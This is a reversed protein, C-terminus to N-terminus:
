FLRIFAYYNTEDGFYPKSKKYFITYKIHFITLLYGFLNKLLYFKLLFLLM